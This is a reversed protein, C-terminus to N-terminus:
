RPASGPLVPRAYSAVSSAVPAEPPFKLRLSKGVFIDKELPLGADAAAYIKDVLASAQRHAEAAKHDRLSVKTVAVVDLFQRRLHAHGRALSCGADGAILGGGTLMSGVTVAVLLPSATGAVGLCVGVLAAALFVFPLPRWLKEVWWRRGLTTDCREMGKKVDADSMTRVSKEVARVFRKSLVDLMKENLSRFLM